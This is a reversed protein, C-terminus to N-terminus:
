HANVMEKFSQSSELLEDYSGKDILRGREFQFIVDCNRVTALRHAIMIITIKHSLKHISDIISNETVSDLASTAEDLILVKPKHYLARAIGIRQRQGGSLRVGREGVYTQYGEPLEKLIFEHINATKAASEVLVPDVDKTDVGFAINNAVTDDSLFITQPIYGLQRQWQQVNRTSVEVGDVLINGKQMSLLGLIIDVTTTKGSGTTGVFGVTSNVDISINLNDVVLSTSGPYSYSGGVIEINKNFELNSSLEDQENVDISATDGVFENFDDYLIDLGALNYRITAMNSFISQLAPMLRYGAFAYLAVLPLIQEVSNKTSILYLIILLIGGFAVTELAYRPLQTYMKSTAAYSVFQRFSESYEDIFLKERGLIKLEKIGGMAENASKYRHLNMTSADEGIRSLKRRVLKYIVAYAGGLVLIVTFALMPDMYILLSTIFIASVIKTIMQLAPNFVGGVVRGVESLINKSLEATNKNLFFVYPHRLYKILLNTSLSHEMFCTFRIIMWTTFASFGNSFALILLILFGVFLLFDDMGDFNLFQYLQYLYRNEFVIDNNTVISIFPVISVVGVVEVIGM